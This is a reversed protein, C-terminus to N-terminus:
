TPCRVSPGTCSACGEVRFCHFADHFAVCDDRGQHCHGQGHSSRSESL